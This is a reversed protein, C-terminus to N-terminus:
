SAHFSGLSAKATQSACACPDSLLETSTNSCYPRATFASSNSPGHKFPYLSQPLSVPNRRYLHHSHSFTIWQSPPFQCARPQTSASSTSLINNSQHVIYDLANEKVDPQYIRCGLSGGRLTSNCSIRSLPVRRQRQRSCPLNISRLVLCAYTGHRLFFRFSM